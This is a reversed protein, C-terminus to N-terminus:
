RHTDEAILRAALAECRTAWETESTVEVGDDTESVWGCDGLWDGLCAIRFTGAENLLMATISGRFTEFEIRGETHFTPRDTTTTEM